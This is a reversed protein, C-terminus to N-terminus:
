LDTNLSTVNSAAADVKWANGTGGGTYIIDLWSSASAPMIGLTAGGSRKIEVTHADASRPRSIRIRRAYSGNFSGSIGDVSYIRNGTTTPVRFFDYKGDITHDSDSLTGRRWGIGSKDDTVLFTLAQMTVTDFINNATWTNAEDLQGKMGKLHGLRDAIKQFLIEWYAEPM